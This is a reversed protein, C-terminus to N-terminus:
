LSLFPVTMGKQIKQEIANRLKEDIQLWKFNKEKNTESKEGNPFSVKIFLSMCIGDHEAAPRGDHEVGLVGVTELKGGPITFAVQM